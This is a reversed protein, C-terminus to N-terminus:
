DEEVLVRKGVVRWDSEGTLELIRAVHEDLTYEAWKEFRSFTAGMGFATPQETKLYPGALGVEWPEDEMRFRFIYAEALGEETEINYVAVLEIEDPPCGLETPFMLWDVMESEALAAQSAFAQPYLELRNLSQLHDFLWRRTEANAAVAHLKGPPVSAGLQVLSTTAFLLPRADIYELANNLRQRVEPTDVYGMLDLLLCALSRASLYDEDDWIARIKDPSQYPALEDILSDYCALVDPAADRIDEFALAGQKLYELCLRAIGFHHQSADERSLVALLAPFLTPAHQPQKDLDFLPLEEIDEAHRTLLTAFLQVAEETGIATLIRLAWSRGDPSYHLFDREIIPIFDRDPSEYAIQLLLEQAEPHPFQERAAELATRAEQTTIRSDSLSELAEIAAQQAAEESARLQEVLRAVRNKRPFM